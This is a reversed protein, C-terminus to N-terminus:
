TLHKSSTKLVDFICVCLMQLISFLPCLCFVLSILPLFCCLLGRYQVQFGNKEGWLTLPVVLILPVMVDGKAGVKFVGGGRCLVAM